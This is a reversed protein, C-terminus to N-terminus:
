NFRFTIHLLGFETQIPEETETHLFDPVVEYVFDKNSKVGGKQM